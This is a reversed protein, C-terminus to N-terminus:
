MVVLSVAVDVVGRELIEMGYKGYHDISGDSVVHAGARPYDGFGESLILSLTSM